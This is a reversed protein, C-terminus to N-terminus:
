EKMWGDAKSWEHIEGCHPCPGLKNRTLSNTPNDFEAKPMGIGTPVEKGTKPCKIFIMGM